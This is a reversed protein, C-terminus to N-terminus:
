MGNKYIKLLRRFGEGAEPDDHDSDDPKYLRHMDRSPAVLLVSEYTHPEQLEWNLIHLLPRASATSGPITWVMREIWSNKNVQSPM